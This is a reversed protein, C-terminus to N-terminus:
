LIVFICRNQFLHNEFNQNSQTAKSVTEHHKKQLEHAKDSNEEESAEPTFFGAIHKGPLFCVSFKIM